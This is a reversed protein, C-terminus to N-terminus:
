RSAWTTVWCMWVAGFSLSVMPLSSSPTSASVAINQHAARRGPLSHKPQWMSPGLCENLCGWLQTAWIQAAWLQAAWIQTAWLQTAWLQSRDPWCTSKTTVSM